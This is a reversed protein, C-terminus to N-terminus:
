PQAAGARERMARLADEYTWFYQLGTILGDAIEVLTTVQLSIPAGSARGVGEWRVRAVVMGAEAHLEEVEISEEEWAAKLERYRDRLEPWGRVRTSDMFGEPAVAKVGPDYIAELADWDNRNWAEFARRVLALNGETDGV